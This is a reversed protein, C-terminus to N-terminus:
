KGSITVQDRDAFWYLYKLNGGKERYAGFTPSKRALEYQEHAFTGERSPNEKSNVKLKATDAYLPARGRSGSAGNTKATKKAPAKKGKATKAPATAKKAPAKRAKKKSAVTEATTETTVNDNMTREKIHSQIVKYLRDCAAIGAAKNKFGKRKDVQVKYTERLEKALENYAQVLGRADFSTFM